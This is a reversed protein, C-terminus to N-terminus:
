KSKQEFERVKDDPSPISTGTEAEAPARDLTHIADGALRIRSAMEAYHRAMRGGRWDFIAEMQRETAGNLAPRIAAAKRMGHASKGKIGAACASDSFYTGLAGKNWPTGRRTVLFALDGTPSADITTKLAALMPIEVRM